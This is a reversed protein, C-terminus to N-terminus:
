DIKTEPYFNICYVKITDIEDELESHDNHAVKYSYQYHGELEDVYKTIRPTWGLCTAAGRDVAYYEDLGKRLDEFSEATVIPKNGDSDIAVYTVKIRSM